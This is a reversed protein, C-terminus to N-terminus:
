APDGGETSTTNTCRPCLCPPNVGSATLREPDGTDVTMKPRVVVRRGDALARYVKITM